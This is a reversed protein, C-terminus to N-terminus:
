SRKTELTLHLSQEIEIYLLHPHLLLLVFPKLHHVLGAVREMWARMFWMDHVGPWDGKESGGSMSRWLGMGAESFWM